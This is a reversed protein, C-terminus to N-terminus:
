TSKAFVNKFKTMFGEDEKKGRTPFLKPAGRNVSWWEQFDWLSEKAEDGICRGEMVMFIRKWRLHEESDLNDLGINRIMIEEDESFPSENIFKNRQRTSEDRNQYRGLANPDRVVGNMFETQYKDNLSTFRGAWDIMSLATYVMKPNDGAIAQPATQQTTSNIPSVPIVPAVPVATASAESISTTPEAHLTATSQNRTTFNVMTRGFNSFSALTKSKPLPLNTPQGQARAPSIQGLM